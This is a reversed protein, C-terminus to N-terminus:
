RKELFHLEIARLIKAPHDTQILDVGWDIAKKYQDLTENRGLSDSFVKIGKVHCAAVSERSLSQWKADVAFPSIDSFKDLDQIGNFSPMCRAAPEIKKLQRLFEIPACVVSRNIFSMERLITALAEPTIDKCDLYAFSEPGMAKTAEVLTPVKTGFYPKGFWAGADLNKLDKSALEKITGKTNTTRGITRDHMLYFKGDSTTRIDIEIYDAGLEAALEIAPITNEPAYRNAGRHYAVKVPWAPHRDRTAVTLVHLPKDTQIWDIGAAIVKRWTVPNDWKEGLAKAQTKVGSQKFLRIVEPNVDDANIEVAALNHKKAFARPDGMVPLWKTMVPVKGNSSSHVKSIVVPNDYVIVQNEMKAQVIETVLLEPNIQKCDLYFNVRGKGLKLAEALTLLKSGAFRPAFWSGADVSLIERLTLDAVRGKRDSKNDLRDDHFIVHQGDKTLRVDIEVWEFYDEICMEIARHTNEPAAVGLGRHVMVQVQRKPTVPEFFPFPDSSVIGNILGIFFLSTPIV